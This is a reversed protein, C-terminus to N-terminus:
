ARRGAETGSRTPWLFWLIALIELGLLAGFATHYAATAYGGSAMVPWWHIVAGIGYQVGFASIFVLLNLATNVRGAVDPPFAQSLIAFSLISAAGCFSFVSWLLLPPLPTGVCIVFQVMLFVGLSGGVVTNLHVGRRQLREAVAGMVLYGGLMAAAIVLLHTAVAARHLGAVDRLWPGVWLGQLSLLAAQALMTLPALRWFLRSTAITALARCQATLGSAQAPVAHEPVASFMLIAVLVTLVALGIFLGRWDTLHLMAEVPATAALAGLGGCAMICGNVFPLRSRPFWLVFAQFAAMLCGSVGVGILARGVVLTITHTGMAFLLAGLAALLLLITQVRRPGYRDLVIGLPLQCAAMTLFYVSTLLGLDAATLGVSTVLDPAIVANVTRFLYSLFYGCAFPLFVRLLRAPPTHITSVAADGNAM